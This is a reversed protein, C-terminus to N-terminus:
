ARGDLGHRVGTQDALRRQVLALAGFAGLVLALAGAAWWALDPQSPGGADDVRIAAFLLASAVESGLVFGAVPWTPRSENWSLALVIGLALPFGVALGIVAVILIHAAGNPAAWSAATDVADFSTLIIGILLAGVLGGCTRAIRAVWEGVRRSSDQVSAGAV